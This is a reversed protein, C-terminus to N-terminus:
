ADEEGKGSQHVRILRITEEVCRQIDELIEEGAFRVVHWGRESLERDRERDKRFRAPDAHYYYGDLEIATKTPLHAFDIRYGLVAYQPTLRIKTMRQWTEWFAAEIASDFEESPVPTCVPQAAKTRRPRGRELEESKSHVSYIHLQHTPEGEDWLEITSAGGTWLPADASYVVLQRRKLTELNVVTVKRPRIRDPLPPIMDSFTKQRGGVLVQGDGDTQGVVYRQATRECVKGVDDFYCWSVMYQSDVHRGRRLESHHQLVFCSHSAGDRTRIQAEKVSQTWLPADKSYAIVKRRRKTDQPDFVDFYRPQM